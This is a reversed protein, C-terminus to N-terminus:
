TRRIYYVLRRTRPSGSHRRPFGHIEWRMGRWSVESGIGLGPDSGRALRLRYSEETGYGITGAQESSQPQVRAQVDIGEAATRLIPNGDEDETRVQPFLTVTENGWDLLSM